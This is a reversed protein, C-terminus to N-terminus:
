SAKSMDGRTEIHRDSCYHECEYEVSEESQKVESRRNRKPGIDGAARYEKVYGIREGDHHQKDTAAADEFLPLRFIRKERETSATPNDVPDCCDEDNDRRHYTKGGLRQGSISILSSSVRSKYNKM